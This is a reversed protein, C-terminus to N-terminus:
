AAANACACGTASRASTVPWCATGVHVAGPRGRWDAGMFAAGYGRAERARRRAYRMTYGYLVRKPIYDFKIMLLGARVHATPIRTGFVVEIFLGPAAADRSPMALAAPMSAALGTERARATM